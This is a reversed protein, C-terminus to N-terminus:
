AGAWELLPRVTRPTLTYAACAAHTLADDEVAHGDYGRRALEALPARVNPWDHPLPLLSLTWGLYRRYGGRAPEALAALWATTLPAALLATIALADEEDACPLSYCSNLPVADHEAPVFAARIRRGFDAWVVRPRDHRAADTRYLPWWCRGARADARRELRSRWHSLWALAGPPLTHYPAGTADHTWLMRERTPALRWRTLTEGRVLPRLLAPEVAAASARLAADGEQWPRSAGHEDVRFLFAANCGSKVGLM